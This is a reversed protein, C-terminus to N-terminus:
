RICSTALSGKRKCGELALAARRFAALAPKTVVDGSRYGLLGAFDFAPAGRSEAGMWTYWYFGALGLSRRDAGLQPLLTAINRAQGGQTTDFDFQAQTMGVASPWSIETALLPTARDHFRDMADRVLRLYLIVNAPLKTFGNVAVADFLGRAGPVRYIQGLSKWALNTLAGLVVTAGPDARKIATHAARLLGVYGAAFPQRWYYALNPENWIQWARIPVRPLSPHQTWFTGHPGYRGILATLYAAYPADQRPTDVGNPNNTADWSPAYLVTPLVSVGRGAADGVVVDTSQFDIPRGGVNTFQAKDAAPVDSWTQYPEAASWSFAVRISQVGSSVMTQVQDAFDISNAPDLVPGDADVGVFGQPVAAASGTRSPRTTAARAHGAVTLGLTVLLILLGLARPRSSGALTRARLLM